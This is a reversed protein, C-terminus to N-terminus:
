PERFGDAYWGGVRRGTWWMAATAVLMPIFAIFVLDLWARSFFSPSFVPVVFTTPDFGTSAWAAFLLLLGTAGSITGAVQRQRHRAEYTLPHYFFRTLVGLALGGVLGLALGASAGLLLGFVAGFAPFYLGAIALNAPDGFCTTPNTACTVILSALLLTAGYVLGLGAGVVLGLLAMRWLYFGLLKLTVM